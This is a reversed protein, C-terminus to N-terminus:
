RRTERYPTAHGTVRTIRVENGQGDRLTLVPYLGSVMYYAGHTPDGDEYPTTEVIRPKGDHGLVFVAPALTYQLSQKFRIIIKSGDDWTALPVWPPVGSVTELRYATHVRDVAVMPSPMKGEMGQRAQTPEPSTKPTLIQVVPLQWTIAAMSTSETSRLQVFYARGSQCILPMTATLGPNLPRVVVTEQRTAGESAEVAGIEWDESNAIPAAALREGPPLMVLSPHNPSSVLDYIKGPQYVYRQIASCGFYNQRSPQVRSAANAERIVGEPAEPRAPKSRKAKGPMKPPPAAAEVPRMPSPTPLTPLPALVSAESVQPPVPAAPTDRAEEFVVQADPVAPPATWGACGSALLGATLLVPLTSPRM